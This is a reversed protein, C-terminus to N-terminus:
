ALGTIEVFAIKVWGLLPVKLVAKGHVKDKTLPPSWNDTYSNHDGKTTIIGEESISHIRHIIPYPKNPADFVIIDDVYFESDGYVVIMDGRYFTPIMSDSFVAVVPTATGLAYGLGINFLYAIVFGLILYIVSGFWGETYKDWTKKIKM